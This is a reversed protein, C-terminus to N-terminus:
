GQASKWYNEIVALDLSWLLDFGEEFSSLTDSVGGRSSGSHVVRSWDSGSSSWWSSGVSNSWVLPTIVWIIFFSAGKEDYGDGGVVFADEAVESGCSQGWVGLGLWSWDVSPTRWVGLAAGKCLISVKNAPFGLVPALCPITVLSEIAKARDPENSCFPM